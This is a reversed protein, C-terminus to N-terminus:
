AHNIPAVNSFPPTHRCAHTNGDSDSAHEEGSSAEEESLEGESGSGSSRADQGDDTGM